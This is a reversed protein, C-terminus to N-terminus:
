GWLQFLHCSVTDYPWDNIGGFEYVQTYGLEALASAATKSRNGSRCYVLLLTDKSPIIQEASSADISGVPFLVAGPIHGSQYEDAERVDLILYDSQTDMMEKAEDASIQQYSNQGDTQTQCGTMWCSLIMLLCCILAKGPIKKM